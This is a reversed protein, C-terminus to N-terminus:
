FQHVTYEEPVPRRGYSQQTLAMVSLEILTIASLWTGPTMPLNFNKRDLKLVEKKIGEQRIAEILAETAMSGVCNHLLVPACVFSM